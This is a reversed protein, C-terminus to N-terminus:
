LGTNFTVYKIKAIGKQTYTVGTANVQSQQGFVWDSDRRYRYSETLLPFPLGVANGPIDLFGNTGFNTGPIIIQDYNELGQL